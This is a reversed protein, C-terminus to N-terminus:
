NRQAYIDKYCPIQHYLEFSKLALEILYSIDSPGANLPCKVLSIWEHPLKPLNKTGSLLYQTNAM